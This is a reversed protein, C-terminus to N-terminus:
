VHANRIVRCYVQAEQEMFFIRHNIISGSYLRELVFENGDFYTYLEVNGDVLLILENNPDGVEFLHKGTEITSLSFSYYLFHFTEPKLIKLYDIRSSLKKFKMKNKDGYKYIYKKM